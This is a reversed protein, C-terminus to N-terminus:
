RRKSKPVSPWVADHTLMKSRDLTRERDAAAKTLVMDEHAELAKSLLDRTKNRPSRDRKAPM